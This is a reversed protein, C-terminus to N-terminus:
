FFLTLGSTGAGSEIKIETLFHGSAV